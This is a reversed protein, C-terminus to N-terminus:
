KADKPAPVRSPDVAGYLRLNERQAETLRKPSARVVDEWREMLKTTDAGFIRTSGVLAAGEASGMLESIDTLDMDALLRLHEMLGAYGPGAGNDPFTLTIVGDPGASELPLAIKHFM